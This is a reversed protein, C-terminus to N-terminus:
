NKWHLTSLMTDLDTRIYDLVPKISDFNPRAYFYLSGRLFHKTSDTIYFQLPTAANGKFEYILGHVKNLKESVLVSEIDDAKGTHNYALAHCDDIMIALNTDNISFYSLYFTAKLKKYELITYSKEKADPSKFYFDANKNQLFTFDTGNLYSTDYNALPLNIRFYGRPRPVSASEDGCGYFFILIPFFFLISKFNISLQNPTDHITVKVQKIRKKDLAEVTFTYKSFNIKENKALFRGTLELLFGAITDAEGKCKEFIEGETKLIRYVDILLTKGEFVYNNDDIKTYSIQDDDFEDTIEGVIEELVDELTVIGLTGGYEDVVIAIHTREHRFDSLLDDIKKNQPVFFPDRILVKWDYEDKDIFPLLDKAVLVGKIKDMNGDFVPFRSYGSNVIAHVVNQFTSSYDIGSVDMRPHMIQSVSTNGFKVIGELIKKEESSTQGHYTLELAHGLEHVTISTNKRKIRKDIISTTSLMLWIFPKLITEIITIPFTMFLAVKLPNQNAYVKPVVECVILLLFTVAIADIFLRLLHEKENFSFLSEDILEAFLIVIAINLLNYGLLLGALLKKPTELIHLLRKHNGTEQDRLFKLESPSLSFCAIEAASILGSLVLLLLIILTHYIVTHDFERVAFLLISHFNTEM